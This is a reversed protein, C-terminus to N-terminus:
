SLVVIASVFMIMCVFLNVIILLFFQKGTENGFQGKERPYFLSM